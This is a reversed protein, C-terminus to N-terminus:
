NITYKFFYVNKTIAFFCLRLHLTKFLRNAVFGHAWGLEYGVSQKTMIRRRRVM